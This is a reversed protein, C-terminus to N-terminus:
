CKPYRAPRFPPCYILEAQKAKAPVWFGTQFGNVDLGDVKRGDVLIRWYSNLTSAVVVLSDQQVNLHLRMYDSHYDDIDVSGGATQSQHMGWQKLGVFATGQAAIKLEQQSLIPPQGQPWPLIHSALYVRPLAGELHYVYLPRDYSYDKVLCAVDHWYKNLAKFDIKSLPGSTPNCAALQGPHGIFMQLGTMPFLPHHSVIWHVNALRLADPNVLSPLPIPFDLNHEHGAVPIPISLFAATYAGHLSGIMASYWWFYTKRRDIFPTYGLMSELGQYQGWFHMDNTDDIGVVRVPKPEVIKLVSSVSTDTLAKWNGSPYSSILDMWLSNMWAFAIVIWGVSIVLIRSAIGGMVWREEIARQIREIFFIVAMWAWADNGAYLLQWRFSPMIKVTEFVYAILPISCFSLFMVLVQKVEKQRYINLIAGMGGMSMLIIIQPWLYLKALEVSPRFVEFRGSTSFLLKIALFYPFIITIFVLVILVNAKLVKLWARKGWFVLGWLTITILLPPLNHFPTWSGMAMAAGVLVAVMWFKRNECFRTLWYVGVIIIAFGHGNSVHADPYLGTWYGEVIVAVVAGIYAAWPRMQWIETQIKWTFIFVSIVNIAMILLYLQYPKPLFLAYIRGLALPYCNPLLWRDMGGTLANTWNGRHSASLYTQLTHTVDDSFSHAANDGFMWYAVSFVIFILFGLFGLWWISTKSSAISAKEKDKSRFIYHIALTVLILSPLYWVQLFLSQIISLYYVM